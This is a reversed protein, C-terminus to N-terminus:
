DQTKQFKVKTDGFFCILLEGNMRGKGYSTSSVNAHLKWHGSESIWTFFLHIYATAIVVALYLIAYCNM